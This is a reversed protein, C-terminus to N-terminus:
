NYESSSILLRLKELDTFTRRVTSYSMIELDKAWHKYGNKAWWRDDHFHTKKKEAAHDKNYTLWHQVRRLVISAHLGVARALPKSVYLINNDNLYDLSM